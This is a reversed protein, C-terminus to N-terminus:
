WKKGGWAGEKKKAGAYDIRIPRSDLQQGGLSIAKDVEETTDFGVFGIGKFEGTEKDNLWRTSTVAAGCGAFFETIKEETISWPLNGCFIEVCGEPKEGQPKYPRETRGGEKAGEWKNRGCIKTPHTTLSPPFSL